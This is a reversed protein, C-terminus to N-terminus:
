DYVANKKWTTDQQNAVEDWEKGAAKKRAEQEVAQKEFESIQQKYEAIQQSFQGNQNEKTLKDVLMHLYHIALRPKNKNISDQVGGMLADVTSQLMLKRVQQAYHQGQESNLSKSKVLKSIFGYLGQLLVQTEKIQNPDSLKATRDAEPQQRITEIRQDYNAKNKKYTSNKNDVQMLQSYVEQLCKCVLLRLDRSLFGEPFSDLMQQFNRARTKLAAELRRKEKNNKEITQLTIAVVVLIILLLSVLGIIAPTSM